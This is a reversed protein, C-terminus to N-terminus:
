AVLTAVLCSTRTSPSANTSSGNAQQTSRAPLICVLISSQDLADEIAKKYTAEGLELLKVNSYFASIGRETLNKYIESALQADVSQTGDAATNKFSIFVDYHQQAM